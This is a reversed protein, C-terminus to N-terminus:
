GFDFASDISHAILRAFIDISIDCDGPSVVMGRSNMKSLIKESYESLSSKELADYVLTDSNCVTPVGVSLVPIGLTNKDIAGQRNGVGSGPALGVTSIQVTAALREPNKAALSDICIVIEPKLFNTVSRLIDACEMGTQATTGPSVAYIEAHCLTNFLDPNNEAIHGTVTLFDCCKSGLSDPTLFRNGLGCVLVKGGLYGIHSCYEIIIKSLLERATKMQKRSVNSIDDIFINAYHGVAKGIKKAANDSKIELKQIRFGDQEYEFLETDDSKGLAVGFECGLDTYQKDSIM